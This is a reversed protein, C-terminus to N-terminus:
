RGVVLCDWTLSNSAGATITVTTSSVSCKASIATAPPTASADLAVQTNSVTTFAAGITFTCTTGTSMSCSGAESLYVPHFNGGNYACKLGHATSDGYCVDQGTVAGPATAENFAYPNSSFVYRGSAPSISLDGFQNDNITATHTTGGSDIGNFVISQSSQSNGTAVPNLQVGVGNQVAGPAFTLGATWMGSGSPKKVFLCYMQTPQATFNGNCSLAQGNTSTSAIGIDFENQCQVGTYTVSNFTDGCVPNIGWVKASNVAAAIDFFGAVGNTTTSANTMYGAVANANTVTAFSPVTICGMVADTGYVSAGDNYIPAPNCSNLISQNYENMQTNTFVGTNATTVPAAFTQTATWTNAINTQAGTASPFNLPYCSTGGPGSTCVTYSGAQVFFGYNGYQDAAFPYSV